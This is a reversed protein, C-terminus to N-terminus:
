TLLLTLAYSHHFSVLLLLIPLSQGPYRLLAQNQVILPLSFPRFSARSLYSGNRMVM